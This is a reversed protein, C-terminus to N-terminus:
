YDKSVLELLNNMSVYRKTLGDALQSETPIWKVDQIEGEELLRQVEGLDVQLRKEHVQKTSRISQEFPKNDTFAEVKLQNEKFDGSIFESLLSGIYIANDLAGNLTSRSRLHKLSKKQNSQVGTWCM